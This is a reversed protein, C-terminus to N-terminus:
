STKVIKFLFITIPEKSVVPILADFTNIASPNLKLFEITRAVALFSLQETATICLPSLKSNEVRSAVLPFVWFPIQM